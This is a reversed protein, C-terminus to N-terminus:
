MFIIGGAYDEVEVTLKPRYNTDAQQQSWFMYADNYEADCMGFFGYNTWVGNIMEFVKDVNLNWTKWGKSENAALKTTAIKVGIEYDNSTGSAKWLGATEWPTGDKRNNWTVQGEVFSTKLRFFSYTRSYSCNDQMLYLELKASLVKRNRPVGGTHLAPFYIVSRAIAFDADADKHGLAILDSMGFNKTPSGSHIRADQANGLIYTSM